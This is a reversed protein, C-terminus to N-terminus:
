GAASELQELMSLLERLGAPPGCVRHAQAHPNVLLGRHASRV